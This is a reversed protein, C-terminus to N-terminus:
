RAGANQLVPEVAQWSTAGIKGGNLFFTPTGSIALREAQEDSLDALRQAKDNDALCAMAQESSIGRTAFFDILGSSQAIAQFRKDPNAQAAQSIQASNAQFVTMLEDFSAWAEESLPHFMEPASCRALLAITLDVPDRILHRLEFSVVGTNVYANLPEAGEQSFDACVHCTYSAYEVLKLPADPNGIVIGGEATEVAVDQWAQGDPAAVHAIPDGVPVEGETTESGGCAALALALPASLSLMAFKRLITMDPTRM